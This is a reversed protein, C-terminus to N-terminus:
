IASIIQDGRKTVNCPHCSKTKGLKLRSAFIIQEFGCSCQCLLSRYKKINKDVTKIVIWEGFQKGVYSEIDIYREKKRCDECQSSRGNRLMDARVIKQKKCECECLFHKFVSARNQIVKVEELVLWKGKKEGIMSFGKFNINHNIQGFFLHCEESKSWILSTV